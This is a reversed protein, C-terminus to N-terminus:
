SSHCPILWECSVVHFWVFLQNTCLRLVKPALVLWSCVRIWLVWLQGSKPSAVVKRRITYEIGPWPVLMRIANQGSVGMHSDQCEWFQSEQLKPPAYSQKCVKLQSTTQLLTTARTSFKSCYTVCWRCMLFNLRNKVKLPRSDFQWNSERGKKQGYNTNSTDLHTM